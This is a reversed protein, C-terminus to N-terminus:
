PIDDFAQMAEAKIQEIKERKLGISIEVDRANYIADELYAFSMADIIDPSKIGKSRMVDKKEMVYKLGGAESYHFPLRSGQLLIKQKIFNDINKPFRVRNERVADRFRVMACARLNFFRQKYEKKWCPKGWDVKQVPVGSREILKCVTSGVGGHDVLLTANSLDGFIRVLEGAFDIENITNTCLPIAYYEVRRADEGFDAYGIVKALIAVSEDRYEGLGVDSLVMIGYPEDEHIIRSDDFCKELEVRNLLMGGAADAFLGLVRVQYEVSSRGGCEYERERLWEETVFPSNESSFRLSVWSGGNATSLNHHTEYFKGVNKVGQSALITRNGGQTQTGDIVNFHEDSVGAAEDVIIMQWYRHKGAIGVSQGKQMAVQSIFWQKEFGSVYVKTKTIIFYDYIWSHMSGAIKLAADNMEKWVGDAVQSLNPAGIYTNSGIEKKDDYIAVPFCLLHWLAIVGFAFTKGTGTGSVVSVKARYPSVNEFLSEQDASLNANCVEYAFALPNDQYREVFAPYRPDNLITAKRKAM